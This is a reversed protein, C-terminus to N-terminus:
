RQYSISGLDQAESSGPLLETNKKTLSKTISKIEGDTTIINEIDQFRIQNDAQIKSLRNSLKDLKFNIEEFRNTLQQFQDEIESLKLLHRTLVDESNNDLNSSVLNNSNSEISKSYVAKELTKIDKQISELTEFINHNDAISVTCLIFSLVFIIKVILNNILYM